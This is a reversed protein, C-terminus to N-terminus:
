RASLWNTMLKSLENEVKQKLKYNVAITAQIRAFCYWVACSIETVFQAM